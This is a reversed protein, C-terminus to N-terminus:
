DIREESDSEDQGQMLRSRSFSREEKKARNRNLLANIILLLIILVLLLIFWDECNMYKEKVVQTRVTEDCKKCEECQPCAPCEEKEVEAAEVVGEEEAPQQTITTSTATVYTRPYYTSKAQCLTKVQQEETVADLTGNTSTLRFYYTTCPELGGIAISHNVNQKSLDECGGTMWDYNYKPKAGLSKSVKSYVVCTTGNRNTNWKLNVQTKQLGQLTLNYIYLTQVEPPVIIVEPALTKFTLENSIVEKSSRSSIVRCYYTTNEKLEYVSVKHSTVRVSTDFTLTSFEYGYDPKSGLDYKSISKKGCVVRSDAKLNTLWTFDASYKTINEVKENTIKLTIFSGGGGGGSSEKKCSSSCGDGNITNDDDCDEGSELKGNGCVPEKKCTNTCGDNNATNGDDCEEKDEVRGNGCVPAEKKCSCSCGDGNTKNGDDCEEGSELKGNGCVSVPVEEQHNLFNINTKDQGAALNFYYYTGSAPYTQVWYNKNVENVGYDGKSLGTFNYCGDEGTVTSAVVLCYGVLGPAPNTNISNKDLFMSAGAELPSYPCRVLQIEWGGLKKEGCDIKGNSNADNYKCGSISGKEPASPASCSNISIWDISVQAYKKCDSSIADTARFTLTIDGSLNYSSVNLTTERWFESEVTENDQWGAIKVDGLYVDFSENKTERDLHRVTLSHVAKNGAHLVVTANREADSCPCEILQRYNCVVGRQCGGFSGAMNVPSWGFIEHGAESEANGIDAKDIQSFNKNESTCKEIVCSNSCGDGNINNGDDCAEGEEVTGNGCVPENPISAVNFSLDCGYEGSTSVVGNTNDQTVTGVSPTNLLVAWVDSPDAASVVAKTTTDGEGERSIEEIFPCLNRYCRDFDEHNIQCYDSISGNFGSPPLVGPKPKYKEQITYEGDGKGSYSVTFTKEVKEGAYVDGFEMHSLNVLIPWSVSSIDKEAKITFVGSVLMSLVLLFSIKVKKTNLKM